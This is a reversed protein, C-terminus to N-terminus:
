TDQDVGTQNLMAYLPLYLRFVLDVHKMAAFADQEGRGYRDLCSKSETIQTQIDFNLFSVM